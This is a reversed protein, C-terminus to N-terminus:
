WSFGLTGWGGVWECWNKIYGVLNRFTSSAGARLMGIGTWSSLEKSELNLDLKKLLHEWHTAWLGKDTVTRKCTLSKRFPIMQSEAPPSGSSYILLMTPRCLPLGYFCLNSTRLLLGYAIVIFSFPFYELVRRLRRSTELPFQTDAAQLPLRNMHCVRCRSREKWEKM